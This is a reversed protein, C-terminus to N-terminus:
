LKALFPMPGSPPTAIASARLILLVIVLMLYPKGQRRSGGNEQKDDRRSKTVAVQYCRELMGIKNGGRKETQPPVFNAGLTADGDGLNELDVRSDGGDPVASMKRQKRRKM